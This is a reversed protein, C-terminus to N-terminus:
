EPAPSGGVLGPDPRTYGFDVRGRSLAQPAASCTRQGLGCRSVLYNLFDDRRMSALRRMIGAGNEPMPDLTVLEFSSWLGLLLVVLEDPSVPFPHLGDEGCGLYLMAEEEFCFVALAEGLGPVSVTLPNLRAEPERCAVWFGPHERM